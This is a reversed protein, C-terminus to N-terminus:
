DFKQRCQVLLNKIPELVSRFLEDLKPV